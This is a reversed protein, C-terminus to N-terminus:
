LDSFKKRKISIVNDCVNYLNGAMRGIPELGEWQIRYRDMLIDDDIHFLVIEGIIFHDPGNGLEIMKHLKCELNIKSEAVRPPKVLLSSEEHLGALDFESIGLPSETATINVQEIISKSVINVVFEGTEQINKLTDKPGFPGPMSTFGIMPPNTSVCTFFSFPAVNTGYEGITSVFAIPRPLISGILLKYNEQQELQNPNIQM